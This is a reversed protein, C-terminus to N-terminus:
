LLGEVTDRMDKIDIVKDHLVKKSTLGDVARHIQGAGSKSLIKISEFEDGGGKIGLGALVSPAFKYPSATSAIIVPVGNSKNIGNVCNVASAAVATHTDMVYRSERYVEGITKLSENEDVWRAEILGRMKEMIDPDVSFRGRKALSDYWDVVKGADRGSMEFLFRELNSSILIDMSPSMTKHFERDKVAYEGGNFFDTLVNNKNSACILRRIPLGMEKAYYGALINGFNGTPVCFDVDDGYSIVSTSVLDLYSKVYYVIQPCLRGWNISNASSFKVGRGTAKDRLAKDGFLAKVGSQCDDFNGRAAIVTTNNGDTTAMQLRQIESVGGHPYFVAISIGDRNKFGELAAKGTDGSTAVLILTRSDDDLKIKSFRMFRPMIQLAVDKFAATPGHWLELVYRNGGIPVTKVVEPIDFSEPMYAENVCSAIEAPTFGGMFPTLVAIAIEQYSRGALKSFDARPIKEPVFLGGSSVMGEAVAGAFSLSESNGRTSIYNIDM